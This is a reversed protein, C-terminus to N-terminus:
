GGGAGKDVGKVWFADFTEIQLDVNSIFIHPPLVARKEPEEGLPFPLSGEWM